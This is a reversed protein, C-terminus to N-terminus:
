SKVPEDHTTKAPQKTNDIDLHPKSICIHTSDLPAFAFDLWSVKARQNPETINM